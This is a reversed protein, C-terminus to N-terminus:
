REHQLHSVSYRPLNAYLSDLRSVTNEGQPLNTALLLYETVKRSIGNGLKSHSIEFTLPKTAYKFHNQIIEEVKAKQILCSRSDVYSLLVFGKCIESCRKLTNELETQAETKRCFASLYRDTRYLGKFETLPFDYKVLTELIHYFRSYQAGSYPPDLYVLGSGELIETLEPNAGSIFARHEMNFVSNEFKNAAVSIYDCKKFFLDQIGKPNSPVKNLFEAFHGTSNSAYCMASMLTTLYLEKKPSSIEDIAARINDIEICQSKTFYTDAYAKQFLDFRGARNNRVIKSRLDKEAINRNVSYGGNKIYAKGIVYSYEQIDNAYIRYLQKLAYGVCHTGAMLDLIDHGPPVAQKVLWIIAPLLRVKNGSYKITRLVPIENPLDAYDCQFKSDTAANEM